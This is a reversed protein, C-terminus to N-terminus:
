SQTVISSALHDTAKILEADYYITLDRNKFAAVQGDLYPRGEPDIMTFIYIDSVGTGIFVAYFFPINTGIHRIEIIDGPKLSDFNKLQLQLTTM